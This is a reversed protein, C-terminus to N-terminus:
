ELQQVHTWLVPGALDLGGGAAVTGLVAVGAELQLDATGLMAPSILQALLLDVACLVAAVVPRLAIAAGPGPGRM